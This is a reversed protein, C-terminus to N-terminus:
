LSDVFSVSRNVNFVPSMKLIISMIENKKFFFESFVETQM